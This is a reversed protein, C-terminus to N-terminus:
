VSMTGFVLKNQQTAGESTQKASEPFMDHLPYPFMAVIMMSTNM